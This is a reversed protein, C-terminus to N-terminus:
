HTSSVWLELGYQKLHVAAKPDFYHRDVQALQMKEMM